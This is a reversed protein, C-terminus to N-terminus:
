CVSENKYKIRLSIRKQTRSKQFIELLMNERNFIGSSELEDMTNLLVILTLNEIDQM